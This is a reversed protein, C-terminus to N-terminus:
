EQQRRHRTIDEQLVAWLIEIRRNQEDIEEILSNVEERLLAVQRQAANIRRTNRTVRKEIRMRLYLMIQMQHLHQLTLTINPVHLRETLQPVYPEKDGIHGSVSYDTTISM